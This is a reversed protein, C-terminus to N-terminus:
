GALCTSRGSSPKRVPTRNGGAGGLCLQSTWSLVAGGQLSRPRPKQQNRIPLRVGSLKLGRAPRSLFRGSAFQVKYLGIVGFFVAGRASSRPSSVMARSAAGCRSAAALGNRTFTGFDFC